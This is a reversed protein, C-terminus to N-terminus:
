SEFTMKWFPHSIITSATNNADSNIVSITVNIGLEGNMNKNPNAIAKIINDFIKLKTFPPKYIAPINSVKLSTTVVTVPNIAVITVTTMACGIRRIGIPMPSKPVPTANTLFNM